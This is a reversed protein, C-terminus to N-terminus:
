GSICSHNLGGQGMGRSRHGQNGRHHGQPGDATKRALRNATDYRPLRKVSSPKPQTFTMDSAAHKQLAAPMHADQSAPLQRAAVQPSVTPRADANVAPQALASGDSPLTSGSPESSTMAMAHQIDSPVGHTNKMVTDIDSPVPAPKAAASMGCLRTDATPSPSGTDHLPSAPHGFSTEAMMAHDALMGEECQWLATASSLFATSTNVVPM